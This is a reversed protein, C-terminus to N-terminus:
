ELGEVIKRFRPFDRTAAEALEAIRALLDTAGHYRIELRGPGVLEVAAPLEPARARPALGAPVQTTRAARSRSAEELATSIRQKRRLAHDVLGTKELQELYGLMSERGVVFTKGVQYGGCCGILRIAQRRRLRFLREVGARDLLPPAEAARLLRLIEPVRSHWTPQAPM